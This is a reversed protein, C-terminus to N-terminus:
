PVISFDEEFVATISNPADRKRTHERCIWQRTEDDSLAYLFPEYGGRAILFSEIYEAQAVTLVDWRLRVTRRVHNLGDPTAQTYGDGFNAIRLKYKPTTETGPSPPVPPEFTPLAM